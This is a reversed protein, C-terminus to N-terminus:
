SEPKRGTVVRVPPWMQFILDSRGVETWGIERLTQLYEETCQFDQLAIRGGPKLVRAIERVAKARGEKNRINHISMSAVVADFTNDPFDMTRADSTKVEVREAVGEAFANSLTMQPNNGSLDEEQWIDIGLSKGTSLRQAVANLLLGRGCGVDLVIEDGKLAILDIVKERQILKGVKSSRFMLSINLFAVLAVGLSFVFLLVFIVPHVM